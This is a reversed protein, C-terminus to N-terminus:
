KEPLNNKAEELFYQIYPKVGINLLALICDYLNSDTILKSIVLRQQPNYINLFFTKGYRHYQVKHGQYYMVVDVELSEIDTEKFDPM